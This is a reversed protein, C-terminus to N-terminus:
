KLTTALMRFDDEIHEAQRPPPVHNLILDFLANLDNRPGNLDHDAWGSRGSAYMLFTWNIMTQASIAFLDFCEDLARDPEADGKDVKNLVVIPRLGLNLAKSTVFKTQPM